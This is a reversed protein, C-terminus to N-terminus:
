AEAAERLGRGHQKQTMIATEAPAWKEVKGATTSSTGAAHVGESKRTPASRCHGTDSM